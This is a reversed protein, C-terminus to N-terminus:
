FLHTKGLDPEVPETQIEPQTTSGLGVEEEEKEELPPLTEPPVTTVTLKPKKTPKPVKPKKTSKPPKPKKTPKPTKPKKTPKPGKQKKAKAEREAAKKAKAAEIEEPTKKKKPKTKEEVAVEAPEDSLEREEETRPGILGQPERVQAQVRSLQQKEVPEETSVLVWCLSLGVWVVLVEARM